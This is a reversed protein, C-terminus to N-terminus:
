DFGRRTRHRYIAFVVVAFMPLTTALPLAAPAYRLILGSACAGCLAAIVAIWAARDPRSRTSLSTVIGAVTGTLFTTSLPVPLARMAASQIGMAVAAAVLMGRSAGASPTEDVVQMAVSLGVLVALEVILSATVRVPWREVAESRSTTLHVGVAVGIVFGGLAAIASAISASDGRAIGLGALAINGTMVSAFMGGLKTLAAVDVAGAGFTLAAAVFRPWSSSRSAVDPVADGDTASM